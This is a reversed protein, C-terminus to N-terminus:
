WGHLTVTYVCMKLSYSYLIHKEILKEFMRPTIIEREEREGEKRSKWMGECIFDVGWKEIVGNM